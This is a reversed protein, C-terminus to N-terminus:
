TLPGTPLTINGHQVHYIHAKQAIEPPFSELDTATLLVQQHSLVEQLLYQRRVADLESFVDDLLLVPEDGTNSRMFALEALKTSLAATRQQGRSGYSLMNVGNVLFELDDRHPGLLCVGQMTEKRRIAQLQQQYHKQAEPLSLSEDVSFSPRYIIELRERGGSIAQQLPNALQNISTLMHHREHMIQNALQTLQDDLYDILRPDEQHDRIRKLLASRQTVVKRYRVLAQCYHPSVQCLARDFFRRREEPSGDVLHLDVPAFLVVKMQGIIDITRRPVGNLKYRKRPTNAPLDLGRSTQQSTDDQSFTPPTPDFVSIEIQADDEHRSVRGQLHAVHDPAQWNVVERDSSAHFSTATALMSVAELLNTKGQANEGCFFFLGPGLTLDLHKYNRFYELTLHTLYM